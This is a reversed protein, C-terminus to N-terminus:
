LCIQVIKVTAPLRPNLAWDVYGEPLKDAHSMTHGSLPCPCPSKHLDHRNRSILGFAWIPCFGSGLGVFECHCSHPLQLSVVHCTAHWHTGQCRTRRLITHKHQTHTSMAVSVPLDSRVALLVGPVALGEGAWGDGTCRATSLAAAVVDAEAVAFSHLRM